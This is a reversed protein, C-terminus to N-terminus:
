FLSSLQGVIGVGTILETVVGLLLALMAVRGNLLEAEKTFLNKM